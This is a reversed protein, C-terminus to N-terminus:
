EEALWSRLLNVFEEPKTKALKELQRRVQHEGSELAIEPIEPLRVPVEEEVISERKRRRYVAYGGIAALALAVGGLAYLWYMGTSAGSDLASAGSFSYALVSVKDNLQEPTFNQGSDALSAGVINVLIREVEARVEEPLSAPDNPVPPEIGASITL